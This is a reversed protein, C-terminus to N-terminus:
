GSKRATFIRYGFTGRALGLAMSLWSAAIHKWRWASLRGRGKWLARATHVTAVVPIHAASPAVQLFLDREEIGEFGADWLAARFEERQALEAIAWSACWKRYIWGLAGRPPAGELFGDVVVLRGGAKLLRAAERVAAAKGAGPAYCFSEVAYVADQTGPGTWTSTFDSLMFAIRRDVGAARNLKRGLEIQERVITVATVECRPHRRAVARATAGAGCGLDMARAPAYAPLELADAVVENMKELMPERDIVSMGRMWYGFHMNYNASWRGFDDQAERFLARVANVDTGEAMPENAPRITVSPLANM